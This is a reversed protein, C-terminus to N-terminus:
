YSGSTAMRIHKLARGTGSLFLAESRLHIRTMSIWALHESLVKIAVQRGLRPDFGTAALVGIATEKAIKLDRGIGSAPSQFMLAKDILSKNGMLLGANQPGRLGKGGSFAVLDVGMKRTYDSLNETPPLAAAADVLVPVNHAHAIRVCEELPIPEEPPGADEFRGLQKYWAANLREITGYKKELWRAYATLVYPENTLIKSGPSTRCFGFAM